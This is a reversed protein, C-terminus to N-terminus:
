FFFKCAHFLWGVSLRAFDARGARRHAAQGRGAGARGRAPARTGAARARPCRLRAPHGPCPPHAAVEHPPTLRFTHRSLPSLHARPGALTLGDRVSASLLRDSVDAMRGSSERSSPMLPKSSKSKRIPVTALSRRRSRSTPDPLSKDGEGAHFLHHLRGGAGIAAIEVLHGLAAEGAHRVHRVLHLRSM